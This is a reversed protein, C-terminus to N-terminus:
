RSRQGPTITVGLGTLAALNVQTQVLSGLVAGVLVSIVAALLQRKWTWTRKM